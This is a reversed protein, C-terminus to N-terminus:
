RPVPGWSPDLNDASTCGVAGPYCQTGASIRQVDRGNSQMVYVQDTTGQFFGTAGVYKVFVISRGNPSFSPSLCGEPLCEPPRLARKHRGDVGMVIIARFSRSGVAGTWHVFVIRKGSPSFSPSFDSPGRTLRKKHTGDPRMTWIDGNRAFLIRRGDPAFSPTEDYPACESCVGGRTLRKLHTGDSRILYLHGVSSPGDSGSGTAAGQNGPLGVFVIWRGDPSFSAEGAGLSITKTLVRLDEGRRTITYLATGLGLQTCHATSSDSTSLSRSFVVERGSASFSPWTDDSECAANAPTFTLQRSALGTGEMVWIHHRGDGTQQQNSSFAILGNLGPFAAKANGASTLLLASSSLAAVLLMRTTTSGRWRRGARGSPVVGASSLGRHRLM